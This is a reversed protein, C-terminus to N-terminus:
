FSLLEIMWTLSARQSEKVRWLVAPWAGLVWPGLAKKGKTFGLSIAMVSCLLLTPTQLRGLATLQSISPKM